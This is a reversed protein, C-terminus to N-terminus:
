AVAYIQVSNDDLIHAGLDDLLEDYPTAADLRGAPSIDQYGQANVYTATGTTICAGKLATNASSALSVPISVPAIMSAGLVTRWIVTTGDKIVFETQTASKNCLDINTLYNSNGAGAAAALTVDSTDTIGGSLATYKWPASAGASAGAGGAGLESAVGTTLAPTWKQSAEDLLYLHAQSM